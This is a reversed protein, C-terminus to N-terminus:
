KLLGAWFLLWKIWNKVIVKCLDVKYIVNAIQCECSDAKLYNKLIYLRNANWQRHLSVEKKLDKARNYPHEHVYYDETMLVTKYGADRIKIGILSEECYMFINEDYGGIEVMKEIDTLFFAGPICDVEVFGKQETYAGAYLIRRPHLPYTCAEFVSPIKWAILTIQKGNIDLQKPAILATNSKINNLMKVVIEEQFVVDPNTIVAYKYGLKYCYNLGFNNGYGYGGNRLSQVVRVKEDEFKSLVEFSNDTSCNDVVLILSFASFDHIRNLMKITTTSDNYNVIVCACRVM